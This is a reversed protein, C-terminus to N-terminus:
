GRVINPQLYDGLEYWVNEGKPYPQVEYAMKAKAQKKLRKDRMAFFVYRHKSSRVKRLGNQETNDYHRSHKNGPTYKDTRAKTAGTYIFNCAQYLYGHHEMETDSYSVIILNEQSLERLCGSIFYSLPQDLEDVRCVRNLEYVRSSYEEGCIGRCLSASAPKGFTCVAKLEDDMYWGFAHSIVPTRGSYHRPLLFDVATRYDIRQIIGKDKMQYYEM